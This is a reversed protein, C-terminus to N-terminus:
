GGPQEVADAPETALVRRASLDAVDSASRGLLEEVVWANHQGLTPAPTRVSGPTRSLKFHMGLVPFTGAEPHRVTEFFGRAALHPDNLHQYGNLVAGAAVSARQLEQAAELSGRQRTWEAIVPELTDQNRHRELGGAYRPDNALDPRGIAGCLRGFEEDTYVEIAVWGDHEQGDPSTSPRCPFTNHPAAWAHRNGMRRPRQPNMQYGLFAEGVLRVAGELQSLEVHGGKGTRRRHQLAAVVAGAALLGSAPDTYYSGSHEAPGDPYGNLAAAGSLEELTAGYSVADRMPGTRGMGPMSVVILTPNIPRLREYEFGLKGAVRASYNEVLVDSVAVLDHFIAQGEESTLDLCLGLKNRHRENFMGARNWPREGPDNNPYIGFGLTPKAPGRLNPEVPSEVRIVEAGMDALLKTCHVGAWAIGLDIVRVGELVQGM